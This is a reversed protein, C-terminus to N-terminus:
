LQENFFGMKFIVLYVPFSVMKFIQWWAFAINKAFDKSQSLNLIGLFMDFDM